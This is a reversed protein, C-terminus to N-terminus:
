EDGDGSDVRDLGVGQRRLWAQFTLSQSDFRLRGVGAVRPIPDDASATTRQYVWSASVGLFNALHKLTWIRPEPLDLPPQIPAADAAARKVPFAITSM